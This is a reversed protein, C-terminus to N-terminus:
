VFSHRPKLSNTRLLKFEREVSRTKVQITHHVGRVDLAMLFQSNLRDWAGNVERKGHCWM